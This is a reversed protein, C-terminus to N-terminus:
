ISIDKEDDLVNKRENLWIINRKIIRGPNGVIVTNKEEYKGSLLTGAGVVCGDAIETGKLIKVGLGIWVRSGINIDQDPNVRTGHSNYIGHYDTTHIEVNNSILVGDGLTIKKGGFANIITPQINSANIVSRQGLIITNNDGKVLIRLGSIECEKGIIVRNNNGNIIIQTYKITSSLDKEFKNNKGKIKFRNKGVIRLNCSIFNYIKKLAKYLM